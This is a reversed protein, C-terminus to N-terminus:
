KKNKEKEKYFDKMGEMMEMPRIEKAIEIRAIGNMLIKDEETGIVAKLKGDKDKIVAIKNKPEYIPNVNVFYGESM